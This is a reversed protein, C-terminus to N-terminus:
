QLKEDDEMQNVLGHLHAPQDACVLRALHLALEQDKTLFGDQFESVLLRIVYLMEASKDM